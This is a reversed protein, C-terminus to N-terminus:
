NVFLLGGAGVGQLSVLAPRRDTHTPRTEALISCAAAKSLTVYGAVATWADGEGTSIAAPARMEVWVCVGSGRHAKIAAMADSVKMTVTNLHSM